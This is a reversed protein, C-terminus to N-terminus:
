AEGEAAARGGVGARPGVHHVRTFLGRSGRLDLYASARRFRRPGLIRLLLEPSVRLGSERARVIARAARPGIGPVRVLERFGATEPDVPFWEPRSRAVHEKLDGVRVLFGRDNFAPELDRLTFGYFRLLAWVQYHLRARWRPAAPRRSALPTGPVPTYPSYHVVGVGSSVLYETLSAVRLDDEGSAGLVLQTDVRWPEGAARAAYLLRSLLDVSWSGKSPAIEAFEGPGPAELNLGVRDAARLAERVLRPPTGPMLRLHLFGRFGRERLEWAVEVLDGTVREPDAYIGSSLFVGGVRGSRWLRLSAEVLRRRDWVRRPRRCHVSFPCYLCDMRCASSLLTKVIRGRSARYVPVVVRELGGDSPVFVGAEEWKGGAGPM